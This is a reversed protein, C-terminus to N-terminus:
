SLNITLSLSSITIKPNPLATTIIIKPSKYIDDSLNCPIGPWEILTVNSQNLIAQPFWGVRDNNTIYGIIPVKPKPYKHDPEVYFRGPKPTRDSFDFKDDLYLGRAIVTLNMGRWPASGFYIIIDKDLM